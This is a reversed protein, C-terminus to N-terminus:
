KVRKGKMKERDMHFCYQVFITRSHSLLHLKQIQDTIQKSEQLIQLNHPIIQLERISVMVKLHSFMINIYIINYIFRHHLVLM